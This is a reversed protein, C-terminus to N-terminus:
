RTGKCSVHKMCLQVTVKHKKKKKSHPKIALQLTCGFYNSFSFTDLSTKDTILVFYTATVNCRLKLPSFNVGQWGTENGKRPACFDSTGDCAAECTNHIASM